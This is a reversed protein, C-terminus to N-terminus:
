ATGLEGTPHDAIGTKTQVAIGLSVVIGFGLKRISHAASQVFPIL